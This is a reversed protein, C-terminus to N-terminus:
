QLLEQIPQNRESDAITVANLRRADLCIRPVKNARPVVVLPNAYPSAAPEIVGQRTIMEIQERVADRIAYPTPRERYSFPAHNTLEFGYEFDICLGPTSSFSKQYKKLIARVEGKQEASQLRATEVVGNIVDDTNLVKQGRLEELRGGPHLDEDSDEESREDRYNDSEDCYVRVNCCIGGGLEAGNRLM